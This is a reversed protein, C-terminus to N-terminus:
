LQLSTLTRLSGGPGPGHGSVEFRHVCRLGGADRGAWPSGARRPVCPVRFRAGAETSSEASHGNQRRQFLGERAEPQRILATNETPSAM